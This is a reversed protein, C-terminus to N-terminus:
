GWEGGHTPVLWAHHRPAPRHLGGRGGLQLGQGCRGREAPRLDVCGPRRDDDGLKRLRSAIRSYRGPVGDPCIFQENQAGASPSWTFEWESRNAVRRDMRADTSIVEIHYNLM